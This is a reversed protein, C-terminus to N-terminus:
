AHFRDIPRGGVPLECTFICGGRGAKADAATSIFLTKLDAGGFVACTAKAVPVTIEALIEGDAPRIRLLRRRNWLAVWLMDEADITMGDPVLSGDPTTEPPFERVIRMRSLKGTGKEYDFARIYSEEWSRSDVYYFTDGAANWALGNSCNVGELVAESSGDPKVAYLYAETTPRKLIQGGVMWLGDPACKGDNLRKTDDLGALSAFKERSGDEHIRYLGDALGAYVEGDEGLVICGVKKETDWEKRQGSAFDHRYIRHGNIDIWYLRNKREDYVPGECLEAGCDTWLKAEYHEM